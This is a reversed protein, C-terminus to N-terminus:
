AGLGLRAMTTSDGVWGYLWWGTVQDANPMPSYAHIEGNRTIRYNRSGFQARLAQRIATMTIQNNM